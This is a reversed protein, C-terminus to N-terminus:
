EQLMVRNLLRWSHRTCKEVARLLTIEKNGLTHTQKNEHVDNWHSIMVTVLLREQLLFIFVIRCESYAVHGKTVQLSPLHTSTLHLGTFIWLPWQGTTGHVRLQTKTTEVLLVAMQMPSWRDGLRSFQECDDSCFYVNKMACWVSFGSILHYVGADFIEDKCGKSLTTLIKRETVDCELSTSLSSRGRTSSGTAHSMPGSPENKQM